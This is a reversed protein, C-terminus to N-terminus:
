VIELYSVMSLEQRRLIRVTSRIDNVQISSRRLIGAAAPREALVLRVTAERESLRTRVPPRIAQLRWILPSGLAGCEGESDIQSSIKKRKPGVKVRPLVVAM